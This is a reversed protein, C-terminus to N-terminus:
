TIQVMGILSLEKECWPCAAQAGQEMDGYVADKPFGGGCEPCEFDSM